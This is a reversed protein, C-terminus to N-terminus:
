KLRLELAKRLMLHHGLIRDEIDWTMDTESTFAQSTHNKWLYADFSDQTVYDISRMNEPYSVLGGDNIDDYITDLDSVELGYEKLEDIMQRGVCISPDRCSEYLWAGKPNQEPTFDKWVCNPSGEHFDITFLFQRNVHQAFLKCEEGEIQAKFGRNLDVGEANERKNHEWGWPNMCPYIHFTFNEAEEQTPVFELAAYMGAPEDGHVGGTILVHKEGTGEKQFFLPYDNVWGIREWDGKLGLTVERKYSRLIDPTM